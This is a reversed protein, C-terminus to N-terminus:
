ATTAPPTPPNSAAGAAYGAKYAAVKNATNEDETYMSNKNALNVGYGSLATLGIALLWGPQQWTGIIENYATQSDKINSNLTETVVAYTSNDINLQSQLDQQVKIHMLDANTKDQKVTGLFAIGAITNPDTKPNGYLVAAKDRAAPFVNEMMCGAVFLGILLSAIVIFKKM